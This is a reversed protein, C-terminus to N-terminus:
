AEKKKPPALAFIIAAAIFNMCAIVENTMQAPTMNDNASGSALWDNQGHYHYIAGTALLFVCITISRSM